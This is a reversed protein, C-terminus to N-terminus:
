LHKIDKNLQTYASVADRHMLDDTGKLKIDVRVDDANFRGVFMKAKIMEDMYMGVAIDMCLDKLKWHTFEVDAIAYRMLAKMDLSFQGRDNYIVAYCPRKSASM